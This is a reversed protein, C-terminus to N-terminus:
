SEGHRKGDDGILDSPTFLHLFHHDLEEPSAAVLGCVCTLGPTGEEHAKGDSGKNDEPTFMELLHDILTEASTATFGCFCDPM